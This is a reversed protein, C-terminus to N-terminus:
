METRYLGTGLRKTGPMKVLRNKGQTNLFVWFAKTLVVACDRVRTFGGGVAKPKIM